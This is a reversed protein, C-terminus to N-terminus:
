LFTTTKTLNFDLFLFILMYLFADVYYTYFVISIIINQNLHRWGYVIGRGSGDNKDDEGSKGEV